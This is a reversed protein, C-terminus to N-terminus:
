KLIVGKVVRKRQRPDIRMEIRSLLFALAYAIVFYILATAMLPFFAEYTRSRIIDSMKTLDQIAIYGVISTMKLMSIFEGKFVPLAHRAAQPFVIKMFVQLRNFGIASAAEIQGKDVAEIGTRMMESVYAAFNISFGIVAVLIGNIDVSGFVIYYLIMLLVLIPTGQISRIFAKAPMNLWRNRSMRMMCVGFGLLAGFLASLLTILVTVYLGQLVMKYRNEVIFTRNFSEALGTWVNKEGEVPAAAVLVVVGGSYNPVSFLVSQAREETVTISAGAMDAKDSVLAPMIAPFDMDMIELKRDLRAAILQAIEIDYGIIKNDKVYVFPAIQSCTAFRIVGNKGEIKIDPLVRAADDRGFWKADLRAITGDKRMEELLDNVQKQLEPNNKAFAYAYGDSSLMDKLVTVGTNKNLMDRAIPEDVMVGSLKGATLAAVQDAMNNFYEPLAGPIHEKLLKDYTSGTLVGVKKGRLQSLETILGADKRPLRDRRVLFAIESDVYTNSFRMVKKREPVANLNAVLLDIKGTEAAAILGPFDMTQFTVKANLFLALRKTFEIDFGTLRGDSYYNMPEDLGETGIKLSVAPNRPEPLDPMRMDRGLLWRNYMDQYTGDARYQAIFANVRNILEERNHASGVVIFEDAIKDEMLALDPNRLTIYRLTHRDFSFADIKGFKVAMYGDNLSQYYEIRAKPFNKEVATMAAAGQPVGISYEPANMASVDAPLRKAEERGCGSLACFVLLVALAFLGLAKRNVISIM